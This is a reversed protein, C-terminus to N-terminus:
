KRQGLMEPREIYEPVNGEPADIGQKGGQNQAYDEAGPDNLPQLFYFATLVNLFVTRIM